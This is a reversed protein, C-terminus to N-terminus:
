SKSNALSQYIPPTNTGLNEKNGDLFLSSTIKHGVKSLISKTQMNGIWYNPDEHVDEESQMTKARLSSQSRKKM